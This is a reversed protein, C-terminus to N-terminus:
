LQPWRSYLQFPRVPALKPSKQLKKNNTPTNMRLTRHIFLLSAHSMIMRRTQMLVSLRIPSLLHLLKICKGMTFVLAVLLLFITLVYLAHIFCKSLLHCHCNLNSFVPYISDTQIFKLFFVTYFKLVHSIQQVVTHRRM